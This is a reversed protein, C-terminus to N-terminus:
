DPGAPGVCLRDPRRRLTGPEARLRRQVRAATRHHGQWNTTEATAPLAQNAPIPWQPNTTNLQYIAALSQVQQTTLSYNYIRFADLTMALFPDNYDSKGIYSQTRPVNQPYNAGQVPTYIAGPYTLTGGNNVNSAWNLLVGNVWVQWVGAGATLNTSPQLPVPAAQVSWVIHYWQGLQVPRMFEAYGYQYMPFQTANSYMQLGLGNIDNGNWSIVIDDVGAGNGLFWVKPWSGSAASQNFKVVTEFTWGQQAAGYPYYGAGGLQPLVLGISNPGQSTQLDIYSSSAGNIRILGQHATATAGSDSPDQQLWQYNLQAAQTGVATTPSVPFTARFYPAIPVVALVANDEASLPYNYSVNSPLSPAQSTGNLGYIAALRGVAGASLAYDYVRFADVAMAAPVDGWDSAALYSYPRYVPLPLNGNTLNAVAVGNVYFTWSASAYNVPDTNLMVLTLHYWTNLTPTVFTMQSLPLPSTSPPSGGINNYNQVELTGTQGTNGNWTFGMTDVGGGTGFNFLKSWVETVYLKVVM